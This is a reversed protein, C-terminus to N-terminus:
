SAVLLWLLYGKGRLGFIENGDCRFLGLWGSNFITNRIFLRREQAKIQYQSSHLLPIAFVINLFQLLFEAM